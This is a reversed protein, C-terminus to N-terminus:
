RLTPPLTTGVAHVAPVADRTHELLAEVCRALERIALALENFEAGRDSNAALSAMRADIDALARAIEHLPAAPVVRM